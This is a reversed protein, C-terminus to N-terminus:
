AFRRASRLDFVCRVTDISSVLHWHYRYRHSDPGYSPVMIGLGVSTSVTIATTREARMTMRGQGPRNGSCEATGRSRVTGNGNSQVTLTGGFQRVREQMGRFGVGTSVGSGIKALGRGEAKIELAIGTSTCALRV